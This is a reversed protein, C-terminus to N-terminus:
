IDAVAANTTEESRGNIVIHAGGEALKITIWKGIGSTSGTVVTLKGQLGLDMVAQHASGCHKRTSSHTSAHVQMHLEHPCAPPGLTSNLEVLDLQFLHQGSLWSERQPRIRIRCAMIEALCEYLPRAVCLM